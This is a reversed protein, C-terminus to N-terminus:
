AQAKIDINVQVNGHARTIIDEGDESKVYELICSNYRATMIFLHSKEQGQLQYYNFNPCFLFFCVFLCVFCFCFVYMYWIHKWYCQGLVTICFYKQKNTQKWKISLFVAISMKKIGLVPFPTKRCSVVPKKTAYKEKWFSSYM